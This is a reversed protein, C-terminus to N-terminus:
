PHTAVVRVDWLGSDSCIMEDEGPSTFDRVNWAETTFPIMILHEHKMDQIIQIKQEIKVLLTIQVHHM